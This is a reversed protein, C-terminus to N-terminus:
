RPVLGGNKPRPDIQGSVYDYGVATMYAIQLKNRPGQLSLYLSTQRGDGNVRLILNMYENPDKPDPFTMANQWITTVTRIGGVDNGVATFWTGLGAAPLNSRLYAAAADLRRNMLDNTFRNAVAEGLGVLEQYAAVPIFHYFDDDLGPMGDDMILTGNEIHYVREHDKPAPWDFPGGGCWDGLCQTLHAHLKAGSITSNFKGLLAYRVERTAFLPKQANPLGCHDTLSQVSPPPGDTTGFVQIGATTVLTGQYSMGDQTSLELLAHTFPNAICQKAFSEFSKPMPIVQYAEWRGALTEAAHTASWALLFVFGITRAEFKM